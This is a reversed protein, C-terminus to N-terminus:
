PGGLDADEGEGGPRGDRGYSLLDFMSPNREGPYRYVYPREWPDLPVARRLYPGRWNPPVPGRAPKERLAALGQETTPYVGNDLRYSDLATSLLEIQTRATTTKAESVRGFIQIGVLGALLGLVTIVVVLELLTLGARASSGPDAHLRINAHPLSEYDGRLRVNRHPSPVRSGERSM